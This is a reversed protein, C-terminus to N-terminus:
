KQTVQKADKFIRFYLNYPMIFYATFLHYTFAKIKPSKTAFSLFGVSVLKLLICHVHSMHKPPKLSQAYILIFITNKSKWDQNQKGGSIRWSTLSSAELRETVLAQIVKCIIVVRQGKLIVIVITNQILFQRQLWHGKRNLLCYITKILNMPLLYFWKVFSLPVHFPSFINVSTWQM